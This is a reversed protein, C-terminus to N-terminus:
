HCVGGQSTAFSLVDAKCAAFEAASLGFEVPYVSGTGCSGVEPYVAVMACAFAQVDLRAFHGSNEAYAWVHDSQDGCPGPFADDSLCPETTVLTGALAAQWAPYASCPCTACAAGCTLTGGCGDPITGCTAGQAACTTPVCAPTECSPGTFDPSCTCTYSNVGDVCTGGNQCPNSTGTCVGAQCADTQTCADGDDCATGNPQSAFQCQWQTAQNAFGTTACVPPPPCTVTINGLCTSPLGTPPSGTPPNSGPLTGIVIDTCTIGSTNGNFTTGTVTAGSINANEANGQITAGTLNANAFNTANTNKQLTAGSLNAGTFNAHGTNGGLVAGALNAGTFNTHDMNGNNVFGPLQANSYDCADLDLNCPSAQTCQQLQAVGGCLAQQSAGIAGEDPASVSCAGGLLLLALSGLGLLGVVAGLSRLSTFHTM